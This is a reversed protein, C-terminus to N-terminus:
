LAAVCTRRFSVRVGSAASSEIQLGMTQAGAAGALVISAELNFNSGLRQRRSIDDKVNLADAGAHGDHFGEIRFKQVDTPSAINHVVVEWEASQCEDVLVTDLTTPTATPVNAVGEGPAADEIATELEQLAGKVTNNDSIIDGTFTGLDTSNEPVGSLTILDDVNQDIEAIIVDQAEDKAELETLATKVSVNDSIISGPFTGLDTDGQATGLVSDQADNNGDLKEIASQVSDADTIDGSGATYPSALNIGTAFDWNVDGVKVGPSGATPFHVIAQGEQDAPSDPLYNQVMFTDNDAIPQSAAAVTIDTASTVATVEFLAPTGDVDGIIFEGVAYANGDLSGELDSFATPDISGAVITDGTASRVLESRWSLEDLNASGLLVWDSTAGANAQKRYLEGNSRAYLSSLPAADQPGLDGGPAASGELIEFSASQANEGFLRLGKEIGFLDRAM